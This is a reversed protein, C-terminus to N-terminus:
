PNQPTVIAVATSECQLRMPSIHAIHASSNCFRTAATRGRCVMRQQPRGAFGLDPSRRVVAVYGEDNLKPDTPRHWAGTDDTLSAQGSQCVSEDILDIPTSHRSWQRWNVLTSSALSSSAKYSNVSQSFIASPALWHRVSIHFASLSRSMIQLVESVALRVEFGEAAGEGSGLSCRQLKQCKVADAADALRSQNFPEAM